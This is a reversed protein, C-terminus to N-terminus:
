YHARGSHDFIGEGYISDGVQLWVEELVRRMGANKTWSKRLLSGRETDKKANVQAIASQDSADKRTHFSLLAIAASGLFVLSSIHIGKM